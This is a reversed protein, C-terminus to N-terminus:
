DVSVSSMRDGVQIKRAVDMGEIVQGFVTYNHDLHPHTGLSIYFQSDASDPDQARAMAVAGEIHPRNNFEAKLKQGSGGTGNGLPDGGQIVFGPVVRHFLLGNYFGKKILEVIRNVTNPADKSYFKFKIVGKTTTVTVTSKSLGNVDATLDVGTASAVAASTPAGSPQTTPASPAGSAGAAPPIESPAPNVSGAIPTAITGPAEGNAARNKLIQSYVLGGLIVVAIIVGLLIPLKSKTHAM